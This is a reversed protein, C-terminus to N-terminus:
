VPPCDHIHLRKPLEGVAQIQEGGMLVPPVVAADDVGGHLHRFVGHPHGDGDDPAPQGVIHRQGRPLEGERRQRHIRGKREILVEAHLGAARRVLEGAAPVDGPAGIPEEVERLRGTAMQVALNHLGHVQAAMGEEDGFNDVAGDM